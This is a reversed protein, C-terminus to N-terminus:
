IPLVSSLARKVHLSTYQLRESLRKRGKYTEVFRGARQGNEAAMFFPPKILPDYNEASMYEVVYAWRDGDSNNKKTHHLMLSSFIVVDGKNAQMFEVNQPKLDCELHNGVKSHPLLGNKHSGRQLWLGGNEETMETIGIWFQFHQAKLRNYANDQHWPFAAGGAAKAVCQDWRIWYDPGILENLVRIIKEQTIFARLWESQLFCNSYFILNDKNLGSTNLKKGTEVIEKRLQDIESESFFNRLVVFGNENFEVSMNKVNLADM